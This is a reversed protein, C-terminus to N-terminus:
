EGGKKKNAQEKQTIEDSWSALDNVMAHMDIGGVTVEKKAAQVM